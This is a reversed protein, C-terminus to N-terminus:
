FYQGTVVIYALIAAVAIPCLYRILAAWLAGYRFRTAERGIEALAKHTGWRYGVFLAILLSGITLAYNGFLANMLDLFGIRLWPLSSLAPVAGQSLASPIGLVFSVLGTVLVARQRPWAKEDVLYAVAVELLSITSTLAALGLLVFFLVGFLRGLFMRGFITPLVVFVLGPGGAPDMGMSFLTPFIVLGALFAVLTDFLAVYAASVPLNERSPLYSGYTIMAGMGLSLSFLAQGLAKAFTAARVKSLDPRLYFQLGRSAGDLTLAYLALLVLICFLAPMLIKSWKEIGEAVGGAVVYMTAGIFFALLLCAIWPNGIMRLFAVESQSASTFGGFGRVLAQALYGVTWGAVVSYFSLIGVGTAVGLVGVLKWSSGPALAKFAGIANRQTHRGISLEAIMVPIGFLLVFGAYILVFIAGGNEGTVYPFRWINGLGVASGAAALLFGIRSGWTGRKVADTDSRGM